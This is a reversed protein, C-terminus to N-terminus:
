RPVKAFAAVAIPAMLDARAPSLSLVGVVNGQTGIVVDSSAANGGATVTLLYASSRQAVGPPAAPKLTGSANASPATPVVVKCTALASVVAQYAAQAAAPNAYASLQETLQQGATTNHYVGNLGGHAALGQILALCSSAPLGSSPPATPASSVVTWDAPLDTTTLLRGVLSRDEGPVTTPTVRPVDRRVTSSTSTPAASPSSSCATTALALGALTLAVILSRPQPMPNEKRTELAQDRAAAPV